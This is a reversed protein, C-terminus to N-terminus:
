GFLVAATISVAATALFVVIMFLVREWTHLPPAIQKGARAQRAAMEYGALRAEMIPDKVTWTRPRYPDYTQKM